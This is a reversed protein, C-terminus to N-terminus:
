ILTQLKVNQQVQQNREWYYEIDISENSLLQLEDKLMSGENKDDSSSQLVRSRSSRPLPRKSPKRDILAPPGPWPVNQIANRNSPLEIQGPVPLGFGNSLGLM